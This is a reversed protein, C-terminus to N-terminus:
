DIFVGILKMMDTTRRDTPDVPRIKTFSSVPSKLSFRDLFEMNTQLLDVIDLVKCSSPLVKLPHVAVLFIKYCYLLAFSVWEQTEMAVILPKIDNACSTYTLLLSYHQMEM